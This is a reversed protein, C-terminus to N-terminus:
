GRGPRTDKYQKRFDDISMTSVDNGRGSPGGAFTGGSPPPTPEPEAAAPAPEPVRLRPNAEVAAQIAKNIAEQDSPDVTKIADLFSRSDLLASPDASHTGAARFVALEVKASQTSAREAALM